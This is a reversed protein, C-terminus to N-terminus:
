TLVNETWLCCVWLDAVVFPRARNESAPGQDEPTQESKDRMRPPTFLRSLPLTRQSTRNIHLARSPHPPSSPASSCSPSPYATTVVVHPAAQKNPATNSSLLSLPNNKQRKQHAQAVPSSSNRPFPQDNNNSYGHSPDISLM